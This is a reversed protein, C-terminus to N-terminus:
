VNENEKDRRNSELQDLKKQCKTLLDDRKVFKKLEGVKELLFRSNEIDQATPNESDLLSKAESLIINIAEELKTKNM